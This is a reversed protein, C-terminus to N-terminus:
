VVTRRALRSADESRRVVAAGRLAVACWAAVLVLGAAALAAVELPEPRRGLSLRTGIMVVGLLVESPSYVPVRSAVFRLVAGLGLGTVTWTLLYPWLAGAAAPPLGYEEPGIRFLAGLWGLTVGAATVGAVWLVHHWLPGSRVGEDEDHSDVPSTTGPLDM